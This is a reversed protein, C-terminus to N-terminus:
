IVAVVLKLLAREDATDYAFWLDDESDEYVIVKVTLRRGASVSYFVDAFDLTVDGFWAGFWDQDFVAMASAITNCETLSANCDEILALLVGEKDDDFNKTAAFLTLKVSGALEIGSASPMKWRQFKTPDSEGAGASSKNLLLGQDSDRDTDYNPLWGLTPPDEDLLLNLSSTTNSSGPNTLYMLYQPPPTTTTTTTSTPPPDTTTTSTSTSTTTSTTPPLTTTTTTTAASTTTTSAGTTTTSGPAATTSTTGQVGTTTSSSEAATTTTPDISAVAPIPASTPPPAGAPASPAGRGGAAGFVVTTTTAGPAPAEAAVAVSPVSAAAERTPIPPPEAIGAIVMTGVSAVATVATSIAPTVAAPGLLPLQAIWAIPGMVTRLKGLGVNLFARVVVPDFQTGSCRVLEERAFEAPFPEKYSRSSTMVDFADAVAVIRGALSIESGALGNPYGTGDIREHHETAALAFDGLWPALPAIYHAAAAPHNTIVDWEVKDPRGPKNLIESPM